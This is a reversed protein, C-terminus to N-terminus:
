FKFEKHNLPRSCEGSYTCIIMSAAIVARSGFRSAAAGAPINFCTSGLLMGAVVVGVQWRVTLLLQDPPAVFHPPLM